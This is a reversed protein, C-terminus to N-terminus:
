LDACSEVMVFRFLSSWARTCQELLVSLYHRGRVGIWHVDVVISHIVVVIDYIDHHVVEGGRMVRFRSEWIGAFRGCLAESDCNFFNLICLARSRNLSGLPTGSAM